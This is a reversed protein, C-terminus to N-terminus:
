SGLRCCGCGGGQPRLVKERYRGGLQWCWGGQCRSGLSGGGCAGVCRRGGVSRCGCWGDSQLIGYRWGHVWIGRSCYGFGFGEDEGAKSGVEIGGDWSRVTSGVVGMAIIQGGQAFLGGGEDGGGCRWGEWRGLCERCCAEASGRRDGCRWYWIIVFVAWHPCRNRRVFHTSQTASNTPTWASPTTQPPHHPWPNLPITYAMKALDSPINSLFYNPRSTAPHSPLPVTIADPTTSPIQPMPSKPSTFPLLHFPLSNTTHIAIPTPSPASTVQRRKHQYTRSPNYSSELKVTSLCYSKPLPEDKASM